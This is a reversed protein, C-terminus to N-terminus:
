IYFGCGVKDILKFAKEIRQNKELMRKDLLSTIFENYSIEGNGDNDINNFIKEAYLKAENEGFIKSLIETFAHISIVGKRENDFQEFLSRMTQEEEKLNFQTSIFQIVTQKLKNEQLFATMKKIAKLPNFKTKAKGDNEIGEMAKLWRHNLCQEAGYRKTPNKTLMCTILDIADKSVDKWEDSNFNPSSYKIAHYIDLNSAGSFPPYGCFLIYLIVGCSWIDCKEDYCEALVEPAIYYSTGIFKTLKETKNDFSKATGFDIIKIEFNNSNRNIMMVNEPKLDRHVINKNHLYNVASLLQRMIKAADVESFSGRNSIEEFLEGGDLLETMIYYSKADEFIEYISIINPHSIKKLIEIENVSSESKKKVIKMAREEGLKKHRVKKVTGYSGNGLDGLVVYQQAIPESSIKIMQDKSIKWYIPTNQAMELIKTKRREKIEVTNIKNAIENELSKPPGSPHMSLTKKPSISAPDVKSNNSTVTIEPNNNILIQNSSEKKFTTGSDKGTTFKITGTHNEKIDKLEKMEKTNFQIGIEKVGSDKIGDARKSVMKKYDSILSPELSSGVQGAQPNNNVASGGVGSSKGINIDTQNVNTTVDVKSKKGFELNSAKFSDTYFHSTPNINIQINSSSNINNYNQATNHVPKKEVTDEHKLMIKPEEKKVKEEKKIVKEAKEVKAIGKKSSEKEIVKEEMIPKKELTGAQNLKKTNKIFNFVSNDSQEDDNGGNNSGGFINNSVILNNVNKNEVTADSNKSVRDIPISKGQKTKLKNIYLDIDELIASTKMLEQPDKEYIFEVDLDYNDKVVTGESLVEEEEQEEEEVSSESSDANLPSRKQKEEKIEPIGTQSQGPVAKRMPSATLVDNKSLLPHPTHSPTQGHVQELDLRSRSVEPAKPKSEQLKKKGFM